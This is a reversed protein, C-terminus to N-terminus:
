LRPAVPKRIRPPSIAPGTASIVMAPLRGSIYRANIGASSRANSRASLTGVRRISPIVTAPCHFAHEGGERQDEGGRRRRRCDQGGQGFGFLTPTAVLQNTFAGGQAFARVGSLDFVNGKASGGGFFGGLWGVLQTALKQAMMQAIGQLFSRVMDRFAEKFSKAGEILDNFFGGLAGAAPEKLDIFDVGARLAEQAEAVDRVSVLMRM